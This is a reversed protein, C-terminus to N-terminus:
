RIGSLLESCQVRRITFDHDQAMELLPRQIDNGTPTPSAFTLYLLAQFM